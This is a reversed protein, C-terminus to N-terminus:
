DYIGKGRCCKKFKKRSGCPCPENLGIKRNSRKYTQQPPPTLLDFRKNSIIGTVLAKNKIYLDWNNKEVSNDLLQFFENIINKSNPFRLLLAYIKVIVDKSVTSKFQYTAATNQMEIYKEVLLENDPYRDILKEAEQIYERAEDDSLDESMGIKIVKTGVLLGAFDNIMENAEIENILGEILQLSYGKLFKSEQSGIMGAMSTVDVSLYKTHLYYYHTKDNFACKNFNEALDQLDYAYRLLESGILKEYEAKALLFCAYAYLEVEREKNRDVFVEISKYIKHANERDSKLLQNKIKSCNLILWLERKRNKDSVKEIMPTVLEILRDSGKSYGIESYNQIRDILLSCALENSETDISLLAIENFCSMADDYLSWGNYQIGAYYMGKMKVEKESYSLEISYPMESWFKKEQKIIELLNNPDDDNFVVHRQLFALRAELALINDYQESAKSICYRLKDNDPFDIICRSLFAAFHNGDNVWLEECVKDLDDKDTYYLFMAEKFVDPYLPAILGNEIKLAHEADATLQNLSEERQYGPLTSQRNFQKIVDWEPIYDESLNDIELKDSISARILLKILSSCYRANGEVAELWREEEKKLVTQLLDEYDRYTVQTCGNEIWSEVFMQVFLPRFRLQEFKSGYEDKLMKDRHNDFPLGKKKCIDGIMEVVAQDDMDTLNLFRHARLAHDVNYESNLFETRDYPKFKEELQKYWSGATIMNDRELYLIRLKYKSERFAEFLKKTLTAVHGENGKVYDVVVMTDNFPEFQSIETYSVNTNLFFSFYNNQLKHMLEYALRSKGAGAQGTIAWWLIQSDTCAFDHLQSLELERGCFKLYENSYHYEALGYADLKKESYITRGIMLNSEIKHRLRVQAMDEMFTPLDDHNDGYPIAVINDPLKPLDEGKKCLFYYTKDLKLHESAFKIFRSVNIDETTKGCGVFVLTRTGLLNQIFQAGDNNYIADYQEKDAIINDLDNKSEYAGHIHIIHTSVRKDLMPFTIEPQEYTATQLGTAKELLLDYNTTAFVDQTMLLKRLTDVLAFKKIENVEFAAQMWIHYTKDLKSERLLDGVVQIMNEASSDRNLSEELVKAKNIDQLGAIGDCIWKWWSYREGTLASSIGTGFIYVLENNKIANVFDSYTNLDTKMETCEKRLTHHNNSEKKLGIM